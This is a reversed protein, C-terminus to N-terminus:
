SAGHEPDVKSSYLAPLFYLKIYPIKVAQKNSQIYPFLYRFNAEIDTYLQAVKM